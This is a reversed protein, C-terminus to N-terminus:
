ITGVEKSCLRKLGNEIKTFDSKKIIKILKKNDLVSNKIDGEREGEYRPKQRYGYMKQMLDFIENVSTGKNSSVNIIENKVPSKMILFVAKAVDDALIFDRTQEGDGYITVPANKKMAADFLAIVGTEGKSTQRKGYVNAFRFIIYNIGSFKVYNEMTLKSLGYLSIIDTPDTEKLPLSKPNGYVAASSAAAFKKVGYKKCLEVTKITGLINIRADYEPKKAAVAVSAQAALHVCYDIKYKQFICEFDESLIDVEIYDAKKNKYGSNPNSYNDAVIVKYNNQAFLDTVHSGIFGAGGTVLVTEM